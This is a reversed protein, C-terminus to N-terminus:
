QLKALKERAVGAERSDPYKRVLEKLILRANDKDGLNLFAFGQKLLASNVKNGKPYREIVKQYELIAKEYWKERYYIEGTWFQANDADQSKPYKKLFREFLARAAEYHGQDFKKKAEAYLAKESEAGPPGKKETKGASEPTAAAMKESPEMGLFEEVRVIRDLASGVKQELAQWRRQRKSTEEDLGTVREQIAYATEEVQGRLAQMDERIDGILAHLDALKARLAVDAEQRRKRDKALENHLSDLEKKQKSIQRQLHTVRQDVMVVDDQLACGGIPWLAFM